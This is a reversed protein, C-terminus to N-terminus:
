VHRKLEKKSERALTERIWALVPRSFQPYKARAADTIAADLEDSLTLLRKKM